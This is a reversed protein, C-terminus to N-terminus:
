IAQSVFQTSVFIVTVTHALSLSHIIPYGVQQCCLNIVEWTMLFKIEWKIHNLLNLPVTM